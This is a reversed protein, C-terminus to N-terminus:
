SIVSIFSIFSICDVGDQSGALGYVWVFNGNLLGLFCVFDCGCTVVCATTCNQFEVWWLQSECLGFQVVRLCYIVIQRGYGIILLYQTLIILFRIFIFRVWDLANKRIHKELLLNSLACRLIVCSIIQSFGAAYTIFRHIRAVSILRLRIDLAPYCAEQTKGRLSVEPDSPLACVNSATFANHPCWRAHWPEFPQKVRRPPTKKHKACFILVYHQISDIRLMTHFGRLCYPILVFHQIDDIECFNCIM